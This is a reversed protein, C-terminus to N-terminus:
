REEDSESEPLVGQAAVAVAVAAAAAAAKAGGTTAAKAGGEAKEKVEPVLDGFDMDELAM